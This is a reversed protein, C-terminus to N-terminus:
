SHGVQPFLELVSIEEGGDPCYLKGGDAVFFGLLQAILQSALQLAQWSDVGHIDHLNEHLGQLRVACAWEESSIEYPAGIGLQVERSSGDPAVAHIARRAIFKAATV